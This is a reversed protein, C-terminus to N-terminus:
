IPGIVDSLLLYNVAPHKLNTLTKNTIALDTVLPNIGDTTFGCHLHNGFKDTYVTVKREDGASEGDNTFCRRANIALFTKNGNTAMATTGLITMPNLTEEDKCININYALMNLLHSIFSGTGIRSTRIANLAPAPYDTVSNDFQWTLKLEANNGVPDFYNTTDQDGYYTSLKYPRGASYRVNTEQTIQAILIDTFAEFTTDVFASDAYHGVKKYYGNIKQNLGQMTFTFDVNYDLNYDYSSVGGYYATQDPNTLESVGTLILDADFLDQEYVDGNYRCAMILSQERIKNFTTTYFQNYLDIDVENFYPDIVTVTKSYTESYDVIEEYALGMWQTVFSVQDFSYPTAPNGTPTIALREISEGAANMLNATNTANTFGTLDYVPAAVGLNKAHILIETGSKNAQIYIPTRIDADFVHEQKLELTKDLVRIVVYNGSAGAWGGFDYILFYHDANEFSYRLYQAYADDAFIQVGSEYLYAFLKKKNTWFVPNSFLNIVDEKIEKFGGSTTVLHNVQWNDRAESWILSGENDRAYYLFGSKKPNYWGILKTRNKHSM